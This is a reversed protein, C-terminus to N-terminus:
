QPSHITWAYDQCCAVCTDRRTTFPEQYSIGVWRWGSAIVPGVTKRMLPANLRGCHPCQIKVLGDWFDGRAESYAADSDFDHAQALEDGDHRVIYPKRPPTVAGSPRPM